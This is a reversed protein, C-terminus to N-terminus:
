IVICNLFLRIHQLVMGGGNELDFLLARFVVAQAQEAELRAVQLQMM